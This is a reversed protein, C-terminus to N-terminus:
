DVNTQEEYYKKIKNRAKFLNKKISEQSRNSITSIQKINMDFIYYDQFDLWMQGTLINKAVKEIDHSNKQEFQYSYNKVDETELPVIVRGSSSKNDSFLSSRCMYNRLEGKIYVGAYNVFEGKNNYNRAARTLGYYACSILEDLSFYKFVKRYQKKAINEAFSLYELILENNQNM